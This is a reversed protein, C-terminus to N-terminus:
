PASLVPSVLFNNERNRRETSLSKGNGNNSGAFSGNVFSGNLSGNRGAHGNSNVLQAAFDALSNAHISLVLAQEGASLGFSAGNYGNELAQAADTLLLRRFEPSVVAAALLRCLEPTHSFSSNNKM